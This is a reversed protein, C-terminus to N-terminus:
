GGEGDGEGEGERVEDCCPGLATLHAVDVTVGVDLAPAAPATSAATAAALCDGLEACSSM